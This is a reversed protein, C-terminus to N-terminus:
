VLSCSDCRYKRPTTNFKETFIRHFYSKNEYGVAIAIEEVSLTTSKLLFAAQSLRKEQLHETYTKGTRNKIEHSLWYFDYHLLTAAESLSGHRYNEEIYRLIDMIAKDERSEHSLKDTHNLLQMFLLGMTTQNINRKNSTNNILTWILNEILNQVPLVNAVKFHLYGQYDADFLSRVLFNQIPTEEAGLMELTKDFFAPQIIFNIAIDHEGAPLIEQKANQGLFLLEGEHLKIKKGNIIHATEGCCMYVAEIYDHTHEPFHVFRTHKRVSILKGDVLLKKSRIINGGTTTYISKDVGEGRLIAREEETVPTLKNLIEQNIM